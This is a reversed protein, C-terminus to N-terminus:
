GCYFFLKKQMSHPLSERTTVISAILQSRLLRRMLLLDGECPLIEEEFDLVEEGPSSYSKDKSRIDQDNLIITRKLPCESSYHGKKLVNSVNYIEPKVRKLLLSERYNNKRKEKGRKRERKEEQPEDSKSKSSYGEKKSERRSYSTNPYGKRSTSM